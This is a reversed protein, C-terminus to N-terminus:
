SALPFRWPHAVHLVTALPSAGETSFCHAYVIQLPQGKKQDIVVTEDELYQLIHQFGEPGTLDDGRLVADFCDLEQASM